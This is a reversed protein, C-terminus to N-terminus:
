CTAAVRSKKCDPFLNRCMRYLQRAHGFPAVMDMMILVDGSSWDHPQVEYEGDLFIDGIERTTFMWSAWALLHGDEVIGVCQNLNVPPIICRNIQIVDYHRHNESHALLNLVHDLM